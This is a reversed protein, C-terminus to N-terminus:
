RAYAGTAVLRECEKTCRELGTLIQELVARESDLDSGPNMYTSVRTRVILEQVKDIFADTQSTPFIIYRGGSSISTKGDVFMVLVTRGLMGDVAASVFETIQETLPKMTMASM